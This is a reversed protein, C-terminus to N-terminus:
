GAVVGRFQSSGTERIRVIKMDNGDFIRLSAAWWGAYWRWRTVLVTEQFQSDKNVVAWSRRSTATAAGDAKVDVAM